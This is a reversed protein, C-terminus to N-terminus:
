GLEDLLRQARQRLEGSAEALVESALARAGYTDGITACEEALALKTALPDGAEDEPPATPTSAVPGTHRPPPDLDLSIGSLDFDIMGGSPPAPRAAAAESPAATAAAAPAVPAQAPAAPTFSPINLDLDMLAQPLPPAAPAPAEAVPPLPALEDDDAPLPEPLRPAAPATTATAQVPQLAPLDLDIEDLNLDLPRGAATDIAAEDGPRAQPETSPGTSDGAFTDPGEAQTDSASTSLWDAPQYLLNSPDLDQGLNAIHNWEPGRGQTLARADRALDEFAHADQRKAYIELLKVHIALRQPNARLAEKLIEEAQLDRGYALYVDAEAVPDVDGAADLQSPSYVMSSGPGGPGEATDIRQGGSGGFFSDAQLRSEIFASDDVGTANRRRLAVVLAALAAILGAAAAPIIPNELLSDLFSPSDATEPKSAPRAASAPASAPASAVPAPLATAEPAPPAPAASAAADAAPASAPLAAAPVGVGPASAGTGPGTSAAGLRNLEAINKNLEAIRTAADQAARERAIREEAAKPDVRGEVSGKSLTLRDPTPETARKEQVQAEVKGSAERSPAQAPPATTTSEALRRRFENFDRSQAVIAQRAEGSPIAAAQSESPLDLVAGAKLRNVNGGSFAQPNARLMALLMQDLSVTPPKRSAAIRAATDGARVTVRGGEAPAAASAAAPVRSGPAPAAAQAPSAPAAPAPVSGPATATGVQPALPAPAQPAAQRTAPPDFLLTYDRVLRGASWTAELVLDVFPESVARTTSLRLVYSGNPRQQLTVQLDALAASREVGAARFAEASGAAARLSAAEEATIQPIEIEARLPEGLTSQVTVRGLALAHADVAAFGFTLATALAVASARWSPEPSRM